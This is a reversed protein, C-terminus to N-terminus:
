KTITLMATWANARWNGNFQQASTTIIRQKYTSWGVAIDLWDLGFGATVTTRDADPYFPGVAADSQPSKELAYGVRLQPGTPFRFRAGTRYTWADRFGLDYTTDLVHANPATYAVGGTGSWATRSTELVFMWPKSPSWTVGGSSESPFRFHTSIPLAQGFPFSATVLADLQPDGTAIQTMKAVGQYTTSIASKHALGFTFHASPRLLLGASWGFSRVTDTDFSVDAIERQTGGLNAALRRASSISSSRYTLGIGLGARKGLPKAFAQTLDLADLKSKTAIFRGSFANPQAWETQERFPTYIGTGSVMGKIFPLTVYAHPILSMPTKQEAATGSGAGPPLGQYLSQNFAGALLGVAAGKKKALLALAGPNCPLSSPDAIAVCAGGIGGARASPWGLEFAGARLLAAHAFLLACCLARVLLTRVAAPLM